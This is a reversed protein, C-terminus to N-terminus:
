KYISKPWQNENTLPKVCFIKWVVTYSWHCLFQQSLKEYLIVETPTIPQNYQHNQRRQWWLSIMGCRPSVFQNLACIQKKVYKLIKTKISITMKKM